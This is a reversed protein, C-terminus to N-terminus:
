WKVHPHKQRFASIQAETQKSFQVFAETERHLARHALAKRLRGTERALAATAEDFYVEGFWDWVYDVAVENPHCMDRDFFRYDRLDDTVLEYVPAYHVYSRQEALDACALLLAAKSRQNEVMGDRLHKVPSVTLMVQLDPNIQRAADIAHRLADTIEAVSLRRKEFTQAAAKHCNAVVRGSEVLGYVHASGLTLVLWRASRLHMHARALRDNMRGLAVDPAAASFSGHHLWSHWLENIKILDGEAFKAGSVVRLLGESVSVPNYVIGFPNLDCDFGAFELRRGIHETFCSGMALIGEGHRIRHGVPHEKLTTRFFM